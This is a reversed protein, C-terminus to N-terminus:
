IPLRVQVKTGNKRKSVISLTGGLLSAREKMGRLGLTFDGVAEQNFGSGNDLITLCAEQETIQLHLTVESVGAHKHINNLSEQGIRFLAEEIPRPLLKFGSVDCTPYLGLGIAYTKLSTMLGAEIGVPRLQWILTRMEQMAEQSLQQIDQLADSLVNPVNPINRAGRATMSLSFLKQSVSDHLDRALRNREESLILEQRKENVRSQEIALAMHDAVARLIERDSKSFSEQLAFLIGIHEDRVKVERAHIISPKPHLPFANNKLAVPKGNQVAENIEHMAEAPYAENVVRLEGDKYISHLVDNPTSKLFYGVLSWNFSEGTRHVIASILDDACEHRWLERTLSELRLYNEARKQEDQYLQIRKIATGIQFAVSELLTLEDNSFSEKGPSGVNLIGFSEGAATLPVTAHHTLGETDGMKYHMADELRKCEIINVAQNLRRDWYKKLCWCTGKCMPEKDKQALAAPLRVDAECTFKNKGTSLFIWGTNLGTVSLLDELVAQLMPKLDTSRNLTEAITKLTHLEREHRQDGM